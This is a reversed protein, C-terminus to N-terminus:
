QKKKRRILVIAVVAAAAIVAGGVSLGVILGVNGGGNDPKEDTPEDPPANDADILVSSDLSYLRVDSLSVGSNEGTRFGIKGYTMGNNEAFSATVISDGLADYPQDKERVALSVTDGMVTLRVTAGAADFIDFGGAIPATPAALNRLTVSSEGRSFVIGYANEYNYCNGFTIEFSDGAISDVTFYLIFFPMTGTTEVSSSAGLTVVGGSATVSGVSSWADGLGDGFNNRLVDVKDEGTGLYRAYFSYEYSTM